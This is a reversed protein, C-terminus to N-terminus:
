ACLFSLDQKDGVREKKDAELHCPILVQARSNFRVKFGSKAMYWGQPERAQLLMLGTEAELMM